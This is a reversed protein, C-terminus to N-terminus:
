KIEVKMLKSFLAPAIIKIEAKYASIHEEDALDFIKSVKYHTAKDDLFITKNEIDALEEKSLFITLKAMSTDALTALTMGTSVVDERKVHLKYLTLGENFFSKDAIDKKLREKQYELDALQSHLTSLKEETTNLSIKTSMYDFFDKDKEVISKTKLNKVKEYNRKKRVTMAEYSKLIEQNIEISKQTAKIKKIISSLEKQVLSADLRIYANANLKKGEAAENAFIVKGNTNSKLVYTHIPEVRAYHVQAYLFSLSVLFLFLLKM